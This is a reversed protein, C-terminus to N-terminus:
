FEKRHYTCPAHPKFDVMVYRKFAILLIVSHVKLSELTLVREVTFNSCHHGKTHNIIIIFNRRTLFNHEEKSRMILADTHMYYSVYKWPFLEASIFRRGIYGCGYYVGKIWTIPYSLWKVLKNLRCMGHVVTKTRHLCVCVCPLAILFRPLLARYVRRSHVSDFQFIKSKISDVLKINLAQQRIVIWLFNHAQTTSLGYWESQKERERTIEM